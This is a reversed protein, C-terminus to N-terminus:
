DQTQGTASRGFLGVQAGAVDDKTNRTGGHVVKGPEESAHPREAGRAHFDRQQDIALARGKFRADARGVPALKEFTRYQVSAGALDRWPEAGYLTPGRPQSREFERRPYTRHPQVGEPELPEGANQRYVYAGTSSPGHEPGMRKARKEQGTERPGHRNGCAHQE